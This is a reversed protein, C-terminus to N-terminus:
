SRPIWRRGMEESTPGPGPLDAAGRGTAGPPAGDGAVGDFWITLYRHRLQRTREDDPGLVATVQDFLLTLDEAVLGARLVGATRAAEFIRVGLASADGALRGLDESPTFTGALNVTLAHVDADIIGTVFETLTTWPDAGADLCEQAIRAFRELGDACLRRVLDEKGEYRHYLASIGVGAEKAVASMPAAADRLFVTRAAALILRDNRAAQARRGSLAPTPTEIPDM